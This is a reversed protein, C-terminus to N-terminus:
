GTLPLYTNMNEVVDNFDLPKGIHSNMGAQLCKEVDGRFVNATMAIIPITKAKPINLARIKRTTEYGDMEPMQMDMFIIDYKESSQRFMDFAVKGNVACDIEVQTPELMAQVIERNIEIDEALLIHRGAFVGEIGTQEEEAQKTSVGLRGNIIEV